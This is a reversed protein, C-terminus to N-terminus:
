ESSTDSHDETADNLVEVGPGNEIQCIQDDPSASTEAPVDAQDTQAAQRGQGSPLTEASVHLMVQYCDATSSHASGTELYREAM